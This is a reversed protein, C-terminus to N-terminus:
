ILHTSLYLSTSWEKIFSWCENSVKSGTANPFRSQAAVRRRRCCWYILITFVLLLLGAVLFAIYLIFDEPVVALILTVKSVCLDLKLVDLLVDPSFIKSPEASETSPINLSLCGEDDPTGSLPLEGCDQMVQKTLANRKALAYELPCVVNELLECDKRCIRRPKLSPKTM